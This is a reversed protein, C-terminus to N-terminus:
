EGHIHQMRGILPLSLLGLAAAVLFFPVYGFSQAFWGAIVGAVMSVAADMCQFLTFDVGPQGADALRMFQAYLAVFGISLIFSGSFLAGGILAEDPLWGFAAHGALVALSVAQAVVSGCLVGRVGFTRVLAGGVTAGLVGLVVSGAGSLAGIATLSFGNDILFPGILGPATKQAVVFLAALILGQRMRPRIWAARLSPSVPTPAAPQEVTRAHLVLPLSLLVVLAAMAGTGAGWGHRDVLVLLLGMGIASGVYAGGVQMANGWGVERQRLHEVAYGDCAIDVTATAFAVVGLVILLPWLPVLGTAAAVLLGGVAVVNGAVVLASTHGAQRYREVIPAWLFKVAWPLMLLSLLGVQDLPLGEARLVAPLGGWTLGGIIAQATYLGGISAILPWGGNRM